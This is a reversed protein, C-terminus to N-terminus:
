SPLFNHALISPSDKGVFFTHSPEVTLSVKRAKTEVVEISKIAGVGSKTILFDSLSLDQAIKMEQESGNPMTLPHTPTCIIESEDSLQIRVFIEADRVKKHTVAQWANEGLIHEGIQVDIVKVIGCNTEVLMDEHLCNGSGGGSGGGSGSAPTTVVFGSSASLPVRTQLNQAQSIANSGATQCIAPSGVGGTVFALAGSIEDFYPYVKYSTSATLGTILQSSNPIVTTTGDARFITLGSWSITVTTTTSTYTFGSSLSSPTSGKALIQGLNSPDIPEVCRVNSVLLNWGSSPLTVGDYYHYFAIRCFGANAPSTLTGSPAQVASATSASVIDAFSILNASSRSFDTAGVSYWWVRFYWAAHAPIGGGGGFGVNPNAAFTYPTNQQVSFADCVASFLDGTSGTRDQLVLSYPGVLEQSAPTVFQYIVGEGNGGSEFNRTWGNCSPQIGGGNQLDQTRISSATASQIGTPVTAISFDGNFVLNQGSAGSIPSVGDM